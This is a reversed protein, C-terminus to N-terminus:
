VAIERLLYFAKSLVAIEFYESTEAAEGDIHLPAKARNSITMRETQFYHVTKQPADANVINGKRVQNLIKFILNFKGTKNVIVIDLLGDNLSAKPAITFNNGFQNSNAISILFAETDITTGNAKIQFPYSQANFFYKLTQKIYASLGRKTQGAFEHAVQADFGLGCLMCSFKDNILFADTYEGKGALIIRFAKKFDKPIRAAFALGNGSGMPIIGINVKMGTIASIVQSVTGDGGCIVIDTINEATIKNKLFDYEGSPEAPMIRYFFNNESLKKELYKRVEAKGETGSVPNIFIIFRREKLVETQFNNRPSIKKERM